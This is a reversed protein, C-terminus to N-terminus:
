LWLVRQEGPPDSPPMYRIPRHGLYFAKPSDHLTAPRGIPSCMQQRSQDEIAAIILRWEEAVCLNVFSSRTHTNPPTIGGVDM